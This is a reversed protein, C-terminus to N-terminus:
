ARSPLCYDLLLLSTAIHDFTADESLDVHGLSEIKSIRYQLTNRRIALQSATVIRNGENDVLSRLTPMLPVKATTDYEMLQWILPHVARKWDGRNLALDFLYFGRCDRYLFITREPFCRQGVRLAIHAQSVLDHLSCEIGRSDSVGMILDNRCLYAELGELGIAPDEEAHNVFLALKRAYIVSKAQPVIKALDDEVQCLQNYRLFGDRADIVLVTFYPLMQSWVKGLREKVDSTESLNGRLIDQLLADYGKAANRWTFEMAKLKSCLVQSFHRLCALDGDTVPRNKQVINVIVLSTHTKRVVCATVLTNRSTRHGFIEGKRRLEDLYRLFGKRDEESAIFVIGESPERSTRQTSIWLSDEMIDDETHALVQYDQDVINMPNEFVIHALDLLEELGAKHLSLTLLEDAWNTYACVVSAVAARVEEASAMTRVAIACSPVQESPRVIAVKADDPIRGSDIPGECVYCVNWRDHSIAHDSALFAGMVAHDPGYADGRECSFRKSLGDFVMSMTVIM